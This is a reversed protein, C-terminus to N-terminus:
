AWVSTGAGATCSSSPLGRPLAYDGTLGTEITRGNAQHEAIRSYRKVGLSVYNSRVRREPEQDRRHIDRKKDYNSWWL